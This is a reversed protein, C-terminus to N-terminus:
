WGLLKYLKRDLKVAENRLKKFMGYIYKIIVNPERSEEAYRKYYSRLHAVISDILFLRKFTPLAKSVQTKSNGRAIMRQQFETYLKEDFHKSANNRLTSISKAIHEKSKTVSFKEAM